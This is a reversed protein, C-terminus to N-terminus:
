FLMAITNTAGRLILLVARRMQRTVLFSDGGALDNTIPSKIRDSNFLSIPRLRGQSSLEASGHM